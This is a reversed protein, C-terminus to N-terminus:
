VLLLLLEGEAESAASASASSASSRSTQAEPCDECCHAISARRAPDFECCSSTDHWQLSVFDDSTMCSPRKQRLQSPLAPLSDEVGAFYEHWAEESGGAWPSLMHAM